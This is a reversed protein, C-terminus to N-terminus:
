DGASQASARSWDPTFALIRVGAPLNPNYLSNHWYTAQYFGDDTALQEITCPIRYSQRYQEFELVCRGLRLLRDALASDPGFLATMVDSFQRPHQFYSAATIELAKDYREVPDQTKLYQHRFLQASEWPEEHVILVIVGPAIEEGEPTTVRPRMGASPRGGSERVALQRIRCQWGLFEDKLAQAAPELLIVNDDGHSMPPASM